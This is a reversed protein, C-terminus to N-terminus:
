SVLLLFFYLVGVTVATVIIGIKLFDFFGLTHGQKEAEEIIILTSAAGLLTFNGALTSGGGLAIWAYVNQPGFNLSKMLPIYLAVM